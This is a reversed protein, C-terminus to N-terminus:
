PNRAKAKSEVELRQREAISEFTVPGDYAPPAPNNGGADATSNVGVSAEDPPAVSQPMPLESAVALELVASAGGADRFHASRLDTRDLTWGGVSDGIFLREREKSANLMIAGGSKGSSFVGLLQYGELVNPSLTEQSLQEVVVEKAVTQQLPRRSPLFLPRFIFDLSEEERMGSHATTVLNEETLEAPMFPKVSPQWFLNAVLAIVGLGVAIGIERLHSGPWSLYFQPSRM